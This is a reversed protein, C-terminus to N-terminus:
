RNLFEVEKFNCEIINGNEKQLILKGIPSIGIITAFFIENEIKYNAKRQYLYLSNLYDHNIEDEGGQKLQSYRLDICNVLDNFCKDLDFDKGEILKLSIPNPADSKFITQNINLGIGIVAYELSNNQTSTEILIGASKYNDIYVDNPWKVSVENHSVIARIFDRVALAAIKNLLFQNSIKLFEPYFIISLTLNKHPESEWKNTGLGKGSQQSGTVIITGEEVKQKKLLNVAYNNTSDVSELIIVRNNFETNQM